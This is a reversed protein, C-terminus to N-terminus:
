YLFTKGFVECLGSRSVQDFVGFTLFSPGLAGRSLSPILPRPVEHAQTALSSILFICFLSVSFVSFFNLLRLSMLLFLVKETTDVSAAPRSQSAAAPM